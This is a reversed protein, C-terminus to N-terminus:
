GCYLIEIITGIISSRVYVDPLDVNDLSFGVGSNTIFTSPSASFALDFANFTSEKAKIMWRRVGKVESAALEWTSAALITYNIIIITKASYTVGAM